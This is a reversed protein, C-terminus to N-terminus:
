WVFGKESWNRNYESSVAAFFDGFKIMNIDKYFWGAIPNIEIEYPQPAGLNLLCTNVRSKVFTKLDEKCIGEIDGKEFLKDIIHNEHAVLIHAAELLRNYLFDEDVAHGAAKKEALLQKFAWAGGECHLNEDRVSFNIGSIVNLLKNKGNAQFHKLFAFASYLVAGEVLSFAGISLLDDDGGVLSEVFEMRAALVPDNVYDTYFEDTDLHLAQNIKNYFPAHIGLETYAFTAAMQRIDHRPFMRKFRGGWYENGAVLEYLTFLKLTTVVGHQEAETMNVKMDQLDKEVNIENATWFIEEQTEAFEIAQPYDFTYAEKYTQMRVKEPQLFPKIQERGVLVTGDDKLLSPVKKIGHKYILENDTDIDVNDIHIDRDALWQKLEKCPNCWSATFLLLKSEKGAEM